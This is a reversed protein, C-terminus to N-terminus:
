HIRSRMLLDDVRQLLEQSEQITVKCRTYLEQTDVVVNKLSELRRRDNAFEIAEIDSDL